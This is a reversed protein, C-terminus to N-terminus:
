PNGEVVAASGTEDFPHIFRRQHFTANGIIFLPKLKYGVFFLAFCPTVLLLSWV